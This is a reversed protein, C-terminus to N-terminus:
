SRLNRIPVFYKNQHVATLTLHSVARLNTPVLDSVFIASLYHEINNNSNIKLPLCIYDYTYWVYMCVHICM